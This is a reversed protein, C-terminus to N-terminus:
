SQLPLTEFLHRQLDLIVYVVCPKGMSPSYKTTEKDHKRGMSTLKM